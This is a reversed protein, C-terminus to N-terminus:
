YEPYKTDKMKRIKIFLAVSLSFFVISARKKYVLIFYLSSTTVSCVKVKDVVLADTTVILAALVIDQSLPGAIIMYASLFSSNAEACAIIHYANQVRVLLAIRLCCFSLVLLHHSLLM